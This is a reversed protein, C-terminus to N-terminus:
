EESGEARTPSAKYKDIIKLIAERSFAWEHLYVIEARIKDLVESGEAKGIEYATQIEVSELDQLKQIESDIYQLTVPPLAELHEKVERTYIDMNTGDWIADIAAQRSIADDCPEQLEDLMRKLTDYRTCDNYAHNIDKFYELIEDKTM